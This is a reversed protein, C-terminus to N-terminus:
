KNSKLIEDAYDELSNSSLKAKKQNNINISFLPKLTNLKSELVKKSSIWKKFEEPNNLFLNIEAFKKPDKIAEFYLKDTNSIKDQDLKTANDVLVKQIGEPIGFEKYTSSLTKRLTKLEEKDNDARQLESQRKQEIADNHIALHSNLISTAETELEGQEILESIQAQIIKQSLGKQELNHGVINIQVKENDINEKLQQLQEIASINERILESINGGAQKIEILKKTQEDFSDTSIYKEKLNKDKEAKWSSIIENYGEETLDSIDELYVEQDNYTIAFNEILGDNIASKLRNSYDTSIKVPEEAVKEPEKTPPTLLADIQEQPTSTPKEESTPPLKEEAPEFGEFINKLLEQSIVQADTNTNEM